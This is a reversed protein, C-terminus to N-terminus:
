QLSLSIYIGSTTRRERSRRRLLTAKEDYACDVKIYHKKNEEIVEIHWIHRAGCSCCWQYIFGGMLNFYLPSEMEEFTIKKPKEIM